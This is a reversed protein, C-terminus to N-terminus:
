EDNESLTVAHWKERRPELVKFNLYKLAARSNRKKEETPLHSKNRERM